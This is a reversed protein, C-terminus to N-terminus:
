QWSGRVCHSWGGVGEATARPRSSWSPGQSWPPPRSPGASGRGRHGRAGEQGRARAGARDGLTGGPGTPIWERLSPERSLDEPGRPPPRAGERRGEVGGERCLFPSVKPCVEVVPTDTTRRFKRQRHECFPLSDRALNGPTGTSDPPCWEFTRSHQPEEQGPAQGPPGPSHEGGGHLPWLCKRPGEQRSLDM